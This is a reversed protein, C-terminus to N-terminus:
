SAKTCGLIARVVPAALLAEVKNLVPDIATNRYDDDWTAYEEAFFGRVIPDHVQEV